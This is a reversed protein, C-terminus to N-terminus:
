VNSEEEYYLWTTVTFGSPIIQTWSASGNVAVAKCDAAYGRASGYGYGFGYGYGARGCYQACYRACYHACYRACYHACYRACYHACYCATHHHWYSGSTGGDAGSSTGSDAAGETGSDAGGDTGGGTGDSGTESAVASSYVIAEASTCVGHAVWTKGAPVSDTSITPLTASSISGRFLTGGGSAGAGVVGSM